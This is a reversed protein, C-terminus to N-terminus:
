TYFHSDTLDTPKLYKKDLKDICYEEMLIHCYLSSNYIKRISKFFRDKSIEKGEELFIQDIIQYRNLALEFRFLFNHQLLFKRVDNYFQIKKQPKIADLAKIFVDQIQVGLSIAIYDKGKPMVVQLPHQQQGPPFGFTYGFEYNPNTIKKRLVNEEKLYRVLLDEVKKTKQGTLSLM